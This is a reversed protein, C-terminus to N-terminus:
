KNMYEWRTSLEPTYYGVKVDLDEQMGSMGMEPERQGIVERREALEKWSGLADTADFTYADLRDLIKGRLGAIKAEKVRFAEHNEVIRTAIENVTVGRSEAEATLVASSTGDNLYNLAEQYKYIGSSTATDAYKGFVQNRLTKENEYIDRKWMELYRNVKLEVDAAFEEETIEFIYNEPNAIADDDVTAYRFNDLDFIEVLGPLSPNTPGEKSKEIEVSIGTKADVQRFKFTKM